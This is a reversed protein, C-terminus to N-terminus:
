PATHMRVVRGEFATVPEFGYKLLLKQIRPSMFFDSFQEAAARSEDRCTWVLAHGFRISTVIGAPTEDIIRVLGSNHIADVRYVIGAEADGRQVLNVVAEHHKARILHSPDGQSPDLKRLARAATVGVASTELDGFAIRTGQGALGDHFSTPTAQPNASTVLVLSTQANVQFGGGLTLRKKQLKELDEVPSLFLDISAGNEIERRLTQSPGYVVQVTAGYESEFMPVIEQFAAKLSDAAGITLSEAQVPQATVMAGALGGVIAMSVSFSRISMM